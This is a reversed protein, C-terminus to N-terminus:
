VGGLGGASRLKRELIDGVGVIAFFIKKEGLEGGFYCEDKKKFKL